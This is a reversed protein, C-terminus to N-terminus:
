GEIKPWNEATPRKGLWASGQEQEITASEATSPPGIQCLYM